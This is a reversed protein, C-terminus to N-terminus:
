AAEVDESAPKAKSREVWQSLTEVLANFDIPKGLHADMGAALYAEIQASMVNATMAIIPVRTGPRELARIRRTAEPGDMIPMQIDMLIIDYRNSQYAAVAQAGDSVVDVKLGLTDLITRLLEQNFAHDEVVLARIEIGAWDEIRTERPEAAVHDAVPLAVELWFTSGEGPQSDVDIVGNMLSVIRKCIALGLGTGGFRRTISGDAQSFREFMLARKDGPIGIGTDRVEFRIRCREGGLPEFAVAGVIEGQSTFKLANSLLNFLVQSLRVPDGMVLIPAGTVELRVRVGKGTAAADIVDLADQFLRVPDLAEAELEVAGAEMKSFDLVDNVVTLLTRSATNIRDAARADNPTLAKSKQLLESFGLIATLPTRLEHSMNALFESKASAAREANDAAQELQQLTHDLIQRQKDAQRSLGYAFIPGLCSAVLESIGDLGHDAMTMVVALAIAAMPGVTGVIYGSRSRFAYVAALMFQTMWLVMCVGQFARDEAGWALDGISSWALTNFGFAMMFNSKLSSTEVDAERIRSAARRQWIEGVLVVATWIAVERLPLNYLSILAIIIATVIRGVSLAHVTEALWNLPEKPRFAGIL